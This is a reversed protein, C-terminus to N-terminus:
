SKGSVRFELLWGYIWPALARVKCITKPLVYYSPRDSQANPDKEVGRETQRFLSLARPGPPM